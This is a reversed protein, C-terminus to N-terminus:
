IIAASVAFLKCYIIQLVDLHEKLKHKNLNLLM